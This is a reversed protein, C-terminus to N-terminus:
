LDEVGGNPTLLAGDVLLLCVNDRVLPVGRLSM